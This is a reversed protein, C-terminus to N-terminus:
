GGVCLPQSCPDKLMNLQVAVLGDVLHHGDETAVCFMSPQNAEVQKFLTPELAMRSSSSPTSTGFVEVPNTIKGM